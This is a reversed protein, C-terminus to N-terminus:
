FSTLIVQWLIHTNSNLTWDDAPWGILSCSWTEDSLSSFSPISSAIGPKCAKSWLLANQRRQFIMYKFINSLISCKIKQLLHEMKRLIKLLKWFKVYFKRWNKWHQLFISFLTLILFYGKSYLTLPLLKDVVGCHSWKGCYLKIRAMYASGQYIWNNLCHLNLDDPKKRM